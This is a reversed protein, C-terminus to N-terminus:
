LFRANKINSSILPKCFSMRKQHQHFYQLVYLLSLSSLSKCFFGQLKTTPPPCPNGFFSATKNNSSSLRKCFVKFFKLPQFFYSFNSTLFLSYSILVLLILFLSSYSVVCLGPDFLGYLTRKGTM